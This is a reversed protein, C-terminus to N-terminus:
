MGRLRARDANQSSCTSRVQTQQSSAQSLRSYLQTANWTKDPIVSLSLPQSV